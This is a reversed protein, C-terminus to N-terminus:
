TLVRIGAPTGIEARFGPREGAVVTVRPDNLRGNLAARVASADPHIVHLSVLRCGADPLNVSPHRGAHWEMLAPHAGEFPLMGDAPVGMSWRLEGRQFAMAQGAGDVSAALERNLDDCRVIWNRLRPAGTLRDLDFWRPHDPAPAEPNIAIVELYVGEGLSLLRNHTGMTDHQGGAALDVGLAAEVAAVGEALTEAAVAIHDLEFM